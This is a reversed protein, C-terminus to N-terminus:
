LNRLKENSRSKKPTLPRFKQSALASAHLIMVPANGLFTAYRFLSDNEGFPHRTVDAVFWSGKLGLKEVIMKPTDDESIKVEKIEPDLETSYRLSVEKRRNTM